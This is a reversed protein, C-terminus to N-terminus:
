LVYTLGIGECYVFLTSPPMLFFCDLMQQTKIEISL